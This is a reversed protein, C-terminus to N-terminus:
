RKPKKQPKLIVTKMLDDDDDDESRDADGPPTETAGGANQPDRTRIDVGPLDEPRKPGSAPKRMAPSIIVTEPLYEQSEESIRNPGAKEFRAGELDSARLIVTQQFVDDDDDATEAERLRSDDSKFILTEDDTATSERPPQSAKDAGRRLIVTKPMDDAATEDQPAGTPTEPKTQPREAPEMGPRDAAATIEQSWQQLITELIVRINPDDSEGPAPAAASRGEFMEAHIARQLAQLNAQFEPLRGDEPPQVGAMWLAAGLDLSQRWLEIAAPDTADGTPHWFLNGPAFVPGVPQREIVRSLPTGDAMESRCKQLADRVVDADQGANVLLTYFWLDGLFYYGYAPPYPGANGDAATLGLDIWHTQFDWFFPLRGGASPLRVWVPELSLPFRYYTQAEPRCATQL